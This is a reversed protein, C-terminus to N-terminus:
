DGEKIFVTYGRRSRSYKTWGLIHLIIAARKKTINLYEALKKTNMFSFSKLFQAATFLYPKAAELLMKDYRKM